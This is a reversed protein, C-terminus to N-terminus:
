CGGRPDLEEYDLCRLDPCYEGWNFCTCAYENWYSEFGTCDRYHEEFPCIVFSPAVPEPRTDWGMSQEILEYSAWSPFEM